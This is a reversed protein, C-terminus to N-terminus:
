GDAESNYREEWFRRKGDTIAEVVADEFLCSQKVGQAIEAFADTPRYVWSIRFRERVFLKMDMISDFAQEILSQFTESILGSHTLISLYSKKGYARGKSEVCVAITMILLRAVADQPAPTDGFLAAPNPNLTLLTAQARPTAELLATIAKPRDPLSVNLSMMTRYREAQDEHSLLMLRATTEELQQVVEAPCPLGFLSCGDKIRVVQERLSAARQSLRQYEERTALVRQAHQAFGHECGALSMRFVRVLDLLDRLAQIDDPGKSQGDSVLRCRLIDIQEAVRNKLIEECAHSRESRATQLGLRSESFNQDVRRLQAPLELTQEYLGRAVERVRTEAWREIAEKPDAPAPKALADSLDKELAEVRAVFQRERRALEDKQTKLDRIQGELNGMRMKQAESAETVAGKLVRIQEQLADVTQRHTAELDSFIADIASSIIVGIDRLHAYRGIAMETDANQLAHLLPTICQCRRIQEQTAGSPTQSEATQVHALLERLCDTVAKLRAIEARDQAGTGEAKSFKARLEQLLREKTALEEQWLAEYEQAEQVKAALLQVRADKESLAETIEGERTQWQVELATQREACKAHATRLTELEQRLTQVIGEEVIQSQEKAPEPVRGDHAVKGTMIIDGFFPRESPQFVGPRRPFDNEMSTEVIKPTRIAHILHQWHKGEKNKM